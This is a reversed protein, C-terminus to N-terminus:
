RETGGSDILGNRRLWPLVVDAVREPQEVPMFHGAGGIVELECQPTMAAMAQHQAVPSWGDQAGTLYLVPCLLHQLTHSADPRGLLARIQREHRQM